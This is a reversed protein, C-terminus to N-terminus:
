GCVPPPTAKKAWMPPKAKPAAVTPSTALCRGKRGDQYGPPRKKSRTPRRPLRQPRVRQGRKEAQEARSHAAWKSRKCLVHLCKRLDLGLDLARGLAAGLKPVHKRVAVIGFGGSFDLLELVADLTEPVLLPHESSVKAEAVAVFDDLSGAVFLAQSAGSLL